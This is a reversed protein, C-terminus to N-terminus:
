FVVMSRRLVTEEGEDGEREVDVVKRGNLVIKKSKTVATCQKRRWM